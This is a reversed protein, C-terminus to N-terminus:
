RPLGSLGNEIETLSRFPPLSLISARTVAAVRCRQGPAVMGRLDARRTWTGFWRPPSCRSGRLFSSTRRHVHSCGRVNRSFTRWHVSINAESQWGFSTVGCVWLATASLSMSHASLLRKKQANDARASAGLYAYNRWREVTTVRVNQPVHNSASPLEGVEDIAKHLARLGTGAAKTMKPAKTKSKAATGDGEVVVCSTMVEGDDDTGVEVVVLRSVLKDGEPGDKMFEVEVVINDAADRKVSIRVALSGPLHM